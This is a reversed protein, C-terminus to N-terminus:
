GEQGLIIHHFMPTTTAGARRMEADPDGSLYKAISDLMHIYVVFLKFASFALHAQAEGRTEISKADQVINDRMLHRLVEDAWPPLSRVSKGNEIAHGPSSVSISEAVVEPMNPIKM